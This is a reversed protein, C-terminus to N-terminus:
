REPVVYPSISLNDVPFNAQCSLCNAKTAPLQFNWNGRVDFPRYGIGGDKNHGGFIWKVVAGGAYEVVVGQHKKCKFCTLAGLPELEAAQAAKKVCNTCIAKGSDALIV